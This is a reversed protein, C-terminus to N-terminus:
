VEREHCLIYNFSFSQHVRLLQTLSLHWSNNKILTFMILWYKRYTWQPSRIIKKRRALNKKKFYKRVGTFVRVSKLIQKRLQRYSAESQTLRSKMVRRHSTRSAMKKRLYKVNVSGSYPQWNGFFFFNRPIRFLDSCVSTGDSNRRNRPLSFGRFEMGFWKESSFVRPIGNRVMDRFPFVRPIGNRVM